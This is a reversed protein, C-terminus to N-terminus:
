FHTGMPYSNDPEDVEFTYEVPGVMQLLQLASYSLWLIKGGRESTEPRKTFDMMLAFSPYGSLSIKHVGAAICTALKEGDEYSVFAYYSFVKLLQNDYNVSSSLRTHEFETSDWKRHKEVSVVKITKPEPKQDIIYVDFTETSM